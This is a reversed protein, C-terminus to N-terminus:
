FYTACTRYLMRLFNFIPSLIRTGKVASILYLPNLIKTLAIVGSM